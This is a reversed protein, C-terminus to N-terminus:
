PPSPDKPQQPTSSSGLTPVLAEVQSGVARLRRLRERVLALLEQCAQCVEEPTRDLELIEELLRQVYPDGGM